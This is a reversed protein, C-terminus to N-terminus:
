QLRRGFSGMPLQITEVDIIALEGAGDGEVVPAKETRTEAPPEPGTGDALPLVMCFTSGGRPPSTVEVTGGHAEVIAKVISLGLGLGRGDHRSAQWFRNFLHPIQESPIGSGTDTVSVRIGAPLGEVKVTIRGGDPTFKVANGLLNSLAQGLRDRDGVIVPIEGATECQLTLRRADATTHFMRMVDNIVDIVNVRNHRIPLPGSDLRTVDLLDRILRHMGDAAHRLTALQAREVDRGGDNRMLELLLDTSGIVAMLPNRLDHSVISVVADRTRVAAEAQARAKRERDLAEARHLAVAALDGLARGFRLASEGFQRRGGASAVGLTGILEDEHRLPVVLLSRGNAGDGGAGNGPRSKIETTFVRPDSRNRRDALWNPLTAHTGTASTCSGGGSVVVLQSDIARAIYAGGVRSSNLAAAVTHRAVEDITFAGSLTGALRRLSEEEEARRRLLRELNRGRITLALVAALAVCGLLAFAIGLSVQLRESQEVRARRMQMANAVATDVRLTARLVDEFMAGREASQRLFDEPAKREDMAAVQRWRDVKSRLGSVAPRSSPGIQRLTADLRALLSDDRASARHYAFWVRSEPSLAFSQALSLERALGLRLEGLLLRAPEAVVRVDARLNRTHQRMVLSTMVLGALSLVLLVLPLWPLYPALKAARRSSRRQNIRRDSVQPTALDIMAAELSALKADSQREDGRGAWHVL